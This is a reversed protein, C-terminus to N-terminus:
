EDRAEMRRMRYVRFRRTPKEGVIQFGNKEYFRIADLSEDYVDCEIYRKDGYLKVIERIMQRGIGQGAREPHVAFKHLMVGEQFIEVQFTGVAAKGDLVLYVDREACDRVIAERPYPEKWHILGKRCYMDEGCRKLIKYVEGIDSQDQATLRRYNLEANNGRVSVGSSAQLRRRWM